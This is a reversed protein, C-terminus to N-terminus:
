KLNWNLNQMTWLKKPVKWFTQPAFLVYVDTIKGSIFETFTELTASEETTFKYKGLSM